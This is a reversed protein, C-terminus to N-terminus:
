KLCQTVEVSDMQGGKVNFLPVFLMNFHSVRTRPVYRYAVLKHTLVPLSYLHAAEENPTLARVSIIPNVPLFVQLLNIGPPHLMYDSVNGVQTIVKECVAVM